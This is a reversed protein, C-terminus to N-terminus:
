SILKLHAEFVAGGDNRFTHSGELQTVVGKVLRMGMRSSKRGDPMGVGDDRVILKSYGHPEPDLAITVTGATGHPFAYKLANTVLESLLLALPTAQDRGILIHGVAYRFQVTSGYAAKVEEVVAPIFDHGDLDLYRDHQYIHEHMAAMAAFRSQLDLKASSPIDQLGVLAQVSAMNNKVRHHIERFLMTLEEAQRADRKLLVVIWWCGIGLGLLIPSVIFIVTLVSSRFNTWTESSGVSALAVIPSGDVKYFSVVREVGDVPSSASTYTGHDGAPLFETFLRTDSLDMPGEAPPFRAMLQGDDRVLSVTSGAELDLTQWLGELVANSYSVMIAGAFAGAREVRKSFVFIQDGTLRSILM